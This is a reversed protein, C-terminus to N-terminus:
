LPIVMGCKACVTRSGWSHSCKADGIMLDIRERLPVALWNGSDNQVERLLGLASDLKSKAECLEDYTRQLYEVAEAKTGEEAIANIFAANNKAHYM